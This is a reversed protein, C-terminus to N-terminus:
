KWAMFGGHLDFIQTFGKALLKQAAQRSRSGSRCYLYVPRTKDLKSFKEEFQPQQYFDINMANEIHGSRFEAATRVDVLQVAESALAEKYQSASLVTFGEIQQGSMGFISTFFMTILLIKNMKFAKLLLGILPQKM